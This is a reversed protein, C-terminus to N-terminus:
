DHSNKKIQEYFNYFKGKIQDRVERYKSMVENETGTAMAPDEFSIHLRNKVIGLFAPCRKRAEDCVTVVYDFPLTLFCNIKRPKSNSVDIGVEAMVKVTRHNIIKGPETGASFVELESDFSRLFYDAMQSRCTNGTCIILIRSKM